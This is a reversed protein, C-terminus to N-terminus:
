EGKGMFTVVIGMESDMLDDKAVEINDSLSNIWIEHSTDLVEGELSPYAKLYAEKWSAETVDVLVQKLENELFSIYAVIAKM